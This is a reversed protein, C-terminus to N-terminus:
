LYPFWYIWSCSLSHISLDVLLNAVWAYLLVDMCVAILSYIRSYIFLWCGCSKFGHILSAFLPYISLNLRVRVLRYVILRHIPLIVWYYVFMCAHILLDIVMVFSYISPRIFTLSYILFPYKIIWHISWQNWSHM